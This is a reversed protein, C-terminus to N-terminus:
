PSLPWGVEEDTQNRKNERVMKKEEMIVADLTNTFYDFLANQHKVRMGLIRNLFKSISSADLSLFSLM